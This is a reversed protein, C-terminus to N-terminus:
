LLSTATTSIVRYYYIGRYYFRIASLLLPIGMTLYVIALYEPRVIGSKRLTIGMTIMLTMLIYSKLNFFSFVSPRDNKLNLIRNVHKVSIKSFLVLYFILGGIVSFAIKIWFYNRITGFMSISRMLLMGGAFTWVVAAVFLLVRKTAKPKILGIFNM